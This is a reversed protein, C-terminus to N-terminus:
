EGCPLHFTHTEPCWRKALASILNAWLEAIQIYTAVGFGTVNLYPFVRGDLFYGPDHLQPRVIRYTE